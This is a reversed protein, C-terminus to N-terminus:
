RKAFREGLKGQCTTQLRRGAEDVEPVECILWFAAIVKLLEVLQGPDQPKVIYASAGLTYAKKVDDLDNSSSLVITPIIASEPTGQLFELISFGDGPFMKLDTLLFSPYQYNSRDAFVGEGRLYAIAEEGCTVLRLEAKVLSTKFAREMLVRDNPDDDAVLITYKTRTM